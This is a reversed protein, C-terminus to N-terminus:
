GQASSVLCLEILSLCWVTVTVSMVLWASVMTDNDSHIDGGTDRVDSTHTWQDRYLAQSLAVRQSFSGGTDPRRARGLRQQSCPAASELRWSEYGLGSDPTAILM